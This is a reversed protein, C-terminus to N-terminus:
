ASARRGRHREQAPAKDAHGHTVTDFDSVPWPACALRDRGAAKAAYLAADAQQIWDEVNDMDQYVEAAGLSVTFRLGPTQALQAAALHDRIRRAIEAAGQLDTDPLVLLFEDGGYRAPTDTARTCARLMTAVHRLVHDGVPHGFRDNIEKFRDIDVVVLVAPRGHRRHSALVHEAAALGQRRNALDTLEDTSSLLTLRRNLRAEDNAFAYMVYSIALPYVLLLPVCAIVVSMPTEVDMAFGRAASTLICAAVCVAIARLLFRTGGIAFKDVLVMAVLAASPLLNFDMLAVWVGSLAADLMLHRRVSRVPDESRLALANALHPWLFGNAALLGWLLLSERHLRFVAGVCLFGLGLGVSRLRYIRKAFRLDRERDRAREPAATGDADQGLTSTDPTPNPM